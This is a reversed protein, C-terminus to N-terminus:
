VSGDGIKVVITGEEVKESAGEERRTKRNRKQVDIDLRPRKRSM